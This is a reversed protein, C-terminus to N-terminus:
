TGSDNTYLASLPVLIIGKDELTQAWETLTRVSIPLVAALGIASGNERARTELRTLQVLIKARSPTDDLTLDAVAFAAGSRQALQPAVSRNSSGDDFYALGRLAIEEMIPEFDGSSSTFKAGMHNIIGTYGEIRSMLWYLRDLNSRVSQGILLTQPGPDNQPYDFPELPVQLMIEHGGERAKRALEAVSKGYPAFALTFDDPLTAIANNSGDKSLGLGTVVVAILPKGNASSLTISPRAYVDLPRDGNSAIQPIYGHQSQELMDKRATTEDLPADDGEPLDDTSVVLQDGDLTEATDITQEDVPTANEVTLNRALENSDVVSNVEVDAVPRGGEPNDVFFMWAIPAGLVLALVFIAIPVMPLRPFTSKPEKPKAKGRKRGLPKDLQDMM